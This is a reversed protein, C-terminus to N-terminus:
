CSPYSESRYRWFTADNLSGSPGCPRQPAASNSGARVRAPRGGERVSFTSPQPPWRGLERSPRRGISGSEALGHCLTDVRLRDRRDERGEPSSPSRCSRVSRTWHWRVGRRMRERWFWWLDGRCEPGRCSESTCRGVIGRRSEHATRVGNSIRPVSSISIRRGARQWLTSTLIRLGWMVSTGFLRPSRTPTGSFSGTPRVGRWIMRFVSRLPQSEGFSM